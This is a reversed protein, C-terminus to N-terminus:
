RPAFTVSNSLVKGTMTGRTRFCRDSGSLGISAGGCACALGLIQECVHSDRRSTQRCGLVEAIGPHRSIDKWVSLGEEDDLQHPPCQVTGESGEGVM